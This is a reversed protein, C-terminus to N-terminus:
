GVSGGVDAGYGKCTYRFVISDGDSLKYSSNGYNPFWGNVEYMWGSQEGCDFEYLNGIGEIYYSNYVPTWSYELAIGALSCARKLVDFVTEGEEFSVRSAALLCGNAPVYVNKGEKLDGMNNLITDCRIEIICVSKEVVVDEYDLKGGGTQQGQAAREARVREENEQREREVQGAEQEGLLQAQLAEQRAREREAGVEGLEKATFCLARTQAAAKAKELEFANLASAKLEGLTVNGSVISAFHGARVTKGGVDAENELMYVGASGYPASAAFVGGDLSLTQGGLRMAFPGDLEAFLGGSNLDMTFAGAEDLNIQVRSNEDLTLRGSQGSVTVSSANLTEIIDGDRLRTGEDLAYSIGRRTINVMGNKAQAFVGAPEPGEPQAPQVLDPAAAPAPASATQPPDFWGKLSGVALVGAAIILVAAIAMVANLVAGRRAAKTKRM